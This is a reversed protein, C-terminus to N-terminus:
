GREDELGVWSEMTKTEWMDGSFKRKTIGLSFRKREKEREREEKERSEKVITPEWEYQLKNRGAGM